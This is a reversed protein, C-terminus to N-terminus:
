PVKRGTPCSMTIHLTQSIPPPYDFGEQSVERDGLLVSTMRIFGGAATVAITLSAPTLGKLVFAGDAGVTAQTAESGVPNFGSVQVRVPVATCGVSFTVTGSLDGLPQLPVELGEMDRDGVEVERIAGWAPNSDQWLDRSPERILAVLRYKGPRIDQFEFVGGAQSSSAFPSDYEPSSPVPVLALTASRAPNAAAPPILRGSLSVGTQRVIQIDARFQQGPALEIPEATAVNPAHPFFTSRYTRDWNWWDGSNVVVYYVGPALSSIRFQGRDDTLRSSASILEASGDPLLIGGAAPGSAPIPRRKLVQVSEPTLPVGYPDTVTGAIIAYPTLEVRAAAHLVGDPDVSKTLNLGTQVSAAFRLDVSRLDSAPMFGPREAAFGYALPALGAIQFHGLADTKAVIPDANNRDLKVRAGPIPAGSTSDVVDGELIAQTVPPAQGRLLSAPLLLVAVCGLWHRM